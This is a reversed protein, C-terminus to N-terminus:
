HAPRLTHMVQQARGGEQSRGETARCALPIIAARYVMAAEDLCSRTAVSSRIVSRPTSPRSRRRLRTSHPLTSCRRRQTTRTTFSLATPRDRTRRNSSDLIWPPSFVASQERHRRSTSKRQLSSEPRHDPRDCRQCRDPCYSHLRREDPPRTPLARSTSSSLHLHLPFAAPTQERRPKTAWANVLALDENHKHPATPCCGQRQRALGLSGGDHPRTGLLWLAAGSGSESPASTM